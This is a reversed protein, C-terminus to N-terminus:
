RGLRITQTRLDEPCRPLIDRATIIFRSLNEKSFSACRNKLLSDALYIPKKPLVQLPDRLEVSNLVFQGNLGLESSFNIESDGLVNFKEVWIKINGGKGAYANALLVSNDLTFLKLKSFKTNITLNGGNDGPRNGGSEATIRSNDSLVLYDHVTLNINGGGTKTAEAHIGSMFGGNILITDAEIDISGTEYSGSSSTNIFAQNVILDKTKLNINGAKGYSDVTSTSISSWNSLSFTDVPNNDIGHITIKGAEAVGHIGSAAIYGNELSIKQAEIQIDGAKGNAESFADIMGHNIELVPTSIFIKGGKGFSHNTTRILSFYERAFDLDGIQPVDCETTMACLENPNLGVFLSDKATLNIGGGEATGFNKASIITHNTLRMLGQTSIDILGNREGYNDASIWTRDAIFQGARIFVQGAYKGSVDINAENPSMSQRLEITGLEKFNKVVLDAATKLVVEGTSAVSALNIRGGPAQLSSDQITLDGGIISLDKGESVKLVSEQIKIEAPPNSKSLFGFAEVPAVSLLPNPNPQASFVTEDTLRISDATSAHFSGKVDVSAGQGFLIGSPNLLYLNASASLSGYISSPKGGTVRAIINTVPEPSFTAREGTGINFDRFSHFWNGGQIKGLDAGITYHPGELTKGLGITGDTVIQAYLSTNFLLFVSVVSIIFKNSILM